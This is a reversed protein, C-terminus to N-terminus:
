WFVQVCATTARNGVLQEQMGVLLLARTDDVSAAEASCPLWLKASGCTDTGSMEHISQAASLVAPKLTQMNSLSLVRDSGNARCTGVRRSGDKWAQWCFKPLLTTSYLLEAPSCCYSGFPSSAAARSAANPMCTLWATASSSRQSSDQQWM